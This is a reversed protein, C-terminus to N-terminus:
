TLVLTFEDNGINPLVSGKLPFMVRGEDVGPSEPRMLQVRPMTLTARRGAAVGHQLVVAIQTQDRALTYPNLTAMPEAEVLMELMPSRDRIIVEDTGGILFRNVLANGLDLSLDKLRLTSVANVTFVPTNVRNSVIPARFATYVPVPAAADTPAVWLGQFEFELYPIAQASVVLKVTGRAGTLAYLVGDTNAYITVADHPTATIPNYTVSVGAAITQAMACARLLVGWGPATGATGSPELEVKFSVKAHLGAPITPQAGFWPIDLERSVDEGEMPTVQLGTTLIANAAGTPVSDTGYTTELKALIFKRRDLLPM